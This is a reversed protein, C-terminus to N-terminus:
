QGAGYSPATYGVLATALATASDNSPAAQPTLAPVPGPTPLTVTATVLWRGGSWGLSTQTLVWAQKPPRGPGWYIDANWTTVQAVDGHYYDLRRAGILGINHGGHAWLAMATPNRVRVTAAATLASARIAPAFVTEILRADLAPNREVSDYSVVVYSDAAAVAGALSHDVGVPVGGMYEIPNRPSPAPAAERGLVFACLAFVMVTAAAAAGLPLGAIRRREQARRGLAAMSV